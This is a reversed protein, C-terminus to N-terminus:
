GKLRAVAFWSRSLDERPPDADFAVGALVIRDRADATVARAESCCLTTGPRAGLQKRVLGARGFGRDARGSPTLRLAAAVADSSREAGALVIRGHHDRALALVEIKARRPAPFALGHEGFSRDLGGGARLRAVWPREPLPARATRGDNGAALLTGRPGRALGVVNAVTGRESRLALSAHLRPRGRADLAYVVARARKGRAGPRHGAVLARGSREVLLADALVGTAVTVIGYGPDPAGDPLLRLAVLAPATAPGRQAAIVIRGAADVGLGALALHADPPALETVGGRGFEADLAGGARVRYVAIRALGAPSQLTAAVLAGGGALAIVREHPLGYHVPDEHPDPLLALGRRAFGRDLRGAGTLRALTPGREFRGAVSMGLSDGAILVRGAGDLAVDSADSYGDGGAFAIRGGHGFGRDLDGPKAAAPAALLAFLLVCVRLM